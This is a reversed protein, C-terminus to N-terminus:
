GTCRDLGAGGNFNCHELTAPNSIPVEFVPGAGDPDTISTGGTAIFEAVQLQGQQRGTIRPDLLFGHPDTTATPTLDNRYYTTVDRLGGARMLTASTPNPVTADGFAFQYLVRKAPM